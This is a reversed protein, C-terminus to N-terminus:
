SQSQHTLIIMIDKSQYDGAKKGNKTVVIGGVNM